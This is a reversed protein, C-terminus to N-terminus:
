DSAPVSSPVFLQVFCLLKVINNFHINEDLFESM